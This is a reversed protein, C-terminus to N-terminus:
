QSIYKVGYPQTQPNRPQSPKVTSQVTYGPGVNGQMNGYATGIKPSTQVVPGRTQQPNAQPRAPQAGQCNIRGGVM